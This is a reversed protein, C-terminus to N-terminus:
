HWAIILSTILFPAAAFLLTFGLSRFASGDGIQLVATGPDDPDYHARVPTGVPYSRLVEEAEELNKFSTAPIDNSYGTGAVEYAYSVVPLYTEYTHIASKGRAREIIEIKGGTVRGEAVPWRASARTSWYQFLESGFGLAALPFFLAGLTLVGPWFVAAGSDRLSYTWSKMSVYFWGDVALAAVPLVALCIVKLAKRQGRTM